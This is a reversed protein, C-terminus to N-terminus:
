AAEERAGRPEYGLGLDARPDREYVTTRGSRWAVRWTGVSTHEVQLPRDGAGLRTSFQPYSSQERGNM